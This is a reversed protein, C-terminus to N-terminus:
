HPVLYVQIPILDFIVSESIEDSLKNNIEILIWILNFVRNVTNTM